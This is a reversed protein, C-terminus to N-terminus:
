ILQAELYKMIADELDEDDSYQALDDFNEDFIQKSAKSVQQILKHKDDIKIEDEFSVQKEQVKPEGQVKPEEQPEEQVEKIEPKEEKVELHKEVGGIDKKEPSPSVNVKVYTEDDFHGLKAMRKYKRGGKMILRNTVPNIVWEKKDKIITTM